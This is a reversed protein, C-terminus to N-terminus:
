IQIRSIEQYAQIIKNKMQMALQMSLSAKESAIMVSHLDINGGSAFTEVAKEAARSQSNVNNIYNGLINSFKDAVQTPTIGSDNFDINNDNDFGENKEVLGQLDAKLEPDETNQVLDGISPVSELPQMGEEMFNDLKGINNYQSSDLNNLGTIKLNNFNNLGQMGQMGQGGLGSLPGIM